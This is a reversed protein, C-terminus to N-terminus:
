QKSHHTLNFGSTDFHLRPPTPPSLIPSPRYLPVSFSPHQFLPLRLHPSQHFLLLASFPSPSLSVIPSHLRSPQLSSSALATPAPPFLKCGQPIRPPKGAFVSESAAQTEADGSASLHSSRAETEKRSALDHQCARLKSIQAQAYATIGPDEQVPTFFCTPRQNRPILQAECPPPSIHSVVPLTKPCSYPLTAPSLGTSTGCTHFM